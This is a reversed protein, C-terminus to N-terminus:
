SLNTAQTIYLSKIIQEQRGPALSCSEAPISGWGQMVGSPIRRLFTLLEAASTSDYALGMTRM